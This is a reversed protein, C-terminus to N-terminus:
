CDIGETRSEALQPYLFNWLDRITSDALWIHKEAFLERTVVVFTKPTFDDYHRAGGTTVMTWWVLVIQRVEPSLMNLRLSNLVYPEENHKPMM